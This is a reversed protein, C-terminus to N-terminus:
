KICRPERPELTGVSQVLYNKMTPRYKPFIAVLSPFRASTEGGIFKVRKRVFRVEAYKLVIDHFWAQETRAPLLMVVTLRPHLQTEAHAKEVFKEVLTRSYPPNCWAARSYDPKTTDSALGFRYWCLQERTADDEKTLFHPCKTNTISAAVDIDFHFEDDLPKFIYDPTGFEDSKGDLKPPDEPPTPPSGAPIELATSM